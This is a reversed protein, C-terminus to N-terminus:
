TVLWQLVAASVHASCGKRPMEVQICQATAWPGSRGCYVPGVPVPPPIPTSPLLPLPSSRSRHLGHPSWTCYVMYGIVLVLVAGRADRRPCPSLHDLVLWTCYVTYVMNDVCTHRHSWPGLRVSSLICAAHAQSQACSACAVTPATDDHRCAAIGPLAAAARGAAESSLPLVGRAAQPPM